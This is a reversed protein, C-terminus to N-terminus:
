ARKKRVSCRRGGSGCCSTKGIFIGLIWLTLIGISGFLAIKIWLPSSNKTPTDADTEPRSPEESNHLNKESHRVIKGALIDDVNGAFVAEGKNEIM